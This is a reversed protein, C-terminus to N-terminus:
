KIKYKWIFGYATKREGNACRRITNASKFNLLRVADNACMFENLLIMDLTYQQIIKKKAESINYCHVHSKKKGTHSVSMKKKTFSSVKTGLRRKNNLLSKKINNTHESSCKRGKLKLSNSKGIKIKTEFSHLGNSGAERINLLAYGISRYLDMYYQERETLIKNDLIDFTEIIEFIHNIYGYEILSKYIKRHNKVSLLKYQKFRYEINSSQGIYIENTKICTIKYIGIM